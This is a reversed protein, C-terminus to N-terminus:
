EDWEKKQLGEFTEKYQSSHVPVLVTYDGRTQLTVLGGFDKINLFHIDHMIDKITDILIGGDHNGQMSTIKSLFNHLLVKNIYKLETRYNILRFKQHFLDVNFISEMSQYKEGDFYDIIIKGKPKNDILKRYNTYIYSEYEMQALNDPFNTQLDEEDGDIHKSLEKVIDFTPLIMRQDITLQNFSTYGLINTINSSLFIDLNSQISVKGTNTIKLPKVIHFPFLENNIYDVVERKTRITIDTLFGYAVAFNLRPHIEILVNSEMEAFDANTDFTRDVVLSAKESIKNKSFLQAFSRSKRYRPPFETLIHEKGEIITIVHPYCDDVLTPFKSDFFIEKLAINSGNENFFDQTISNVFDTRTNESGYVKEDSTLFLTM